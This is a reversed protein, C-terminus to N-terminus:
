FFNFFYAKAQKMAVSCNKEFNNIFTKESNEFYIMFFHLFYFPM